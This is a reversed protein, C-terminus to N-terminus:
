GRAERAEETAVALDRKIQHLRALAEDGRVRRTEPSGEFSLVTDIDDRMTGLRQLLTTTKSM